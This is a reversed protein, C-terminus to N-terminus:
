FIPGGYAGSVDYNYKIPNAVTIDEYAANNRAFWSEATYTTNFHGAFRNGGTRPIINITAGGTESEGLAGSLQITIEQANAIDAMYGGLMGVIPGGAVSQTLSASSNLVM